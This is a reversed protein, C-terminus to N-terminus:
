SQMPRKATIVYFDATPAYTSLTPVLGVTRIDADLDEHRFPSFALREAHSSVNGAPEVIAVAIDLHHRHDWSDGLSWGYVVLARRGGREVLQESIRLGSGEDRVLEWNRSNLVLLGGPRLVGAMQRLAARRAKEGPAHFISNGVCWVVDFSNSWGQEMLQEWSCVASRVAVGREAALQRTREIMAESADTATVDFGKLRLGVALQGTGASCDLVRAEPDLEDVIWDFAEVSGEPTLMPETVLWEYVGALTAYPKHGMALLTGAPAAPEDVVDGSGLM